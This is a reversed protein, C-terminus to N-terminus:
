YNGTLAPNLAMPNLSFITLLFPNLISLIRNSLRLGLM